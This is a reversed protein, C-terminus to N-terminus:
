YRVYTSTDNSATVLVVFTCSLVSVTRSPFKSTSSYFFVHIFKSVLNETHYGLCEMVLSGDFTAYKMMAFSTFKCPPTIRTGDLSSHGSSCDLFLINLWYPYYKVM